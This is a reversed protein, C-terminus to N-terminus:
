QFKLSQIIGDLTTLEKEDAYAIILSLGFGKRVTM